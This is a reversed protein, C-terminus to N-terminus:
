LIPPPPHTNKFKKLQMHRKRRLIKFMDETLIGKLSKVETTVEFAWKNINFLLAVMFFVNQNSNEKFIGSKHKACIKKQVFKKHKVSLKIEFYIRVKWTYIVEFIRNHTGQEAM